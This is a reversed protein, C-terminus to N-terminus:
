ASHAIVRARGARGLASRREFDSAMLLLANAMAPPDHPPVLIGTEQDLVLEPIGGVATAIVPLGACMAEVINNPFGEQHSASVHIDSASLIKPVDDRPGLFKVQRSLGYGGCQLQLEELHGDIDKGVVLCVWESRFVEKFAKFAMLLNEHGKYRHLNAVVSFVITMEPIALLRRAISRSVMQKTFSGSNIGNYILKLKSPEVGEAKLERLIATSNGIAAALQPHLVHREIFGLPEQQYVNLSPRTM